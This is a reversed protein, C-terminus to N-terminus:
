QKDADSDLPKPEVHDPTAHTPPRGEDSYDDELEAVARQALEALVTKINWKEEREPHQANWDEVIRSATLLETDTLTIVTAEVTNTAEHKQRQKKHHRKAM